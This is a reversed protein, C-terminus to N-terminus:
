NRNEEAFGNLERIPKRLRTPIKFLIDRANSNITKWIMLDEDQILETEINNSSICRTVNM